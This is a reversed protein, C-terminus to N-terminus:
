RQGDRETRITATGARRVPWTRSASGGGPTGCRRHCAGRAGSRACDEGGARHAHARRRPAAGERAQIEDAHGAGGGPDGPQGVIEDKEWSGFSAGRWADAEGWTWLLRLAPGRVAVYSKAEASRM